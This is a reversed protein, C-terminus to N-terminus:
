EEDPMEPIGDAELAKRIAALIYAQRSRACGKDLAQQIREPMHEEKRARVKLIDTKADMWAQIAKTNQKSPM